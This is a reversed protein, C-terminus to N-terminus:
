NKQYRQLVTDGIRRSDILQLSQLQCRKPLSRANEEVFLTGGKDLLSHRDVWQVVSESYCIPINKDELSLTEYPPDAFIIDFWAGQKALKELLVTVSGKLIKTQADLGLLHINQELCKIANPHSEIFTTHLAGRSIAEIGVAGSGAFLDLFRAGEIFDQCIDFLSGRLRSSTPRTQDGKPSHIKRLKFRGGIISLM